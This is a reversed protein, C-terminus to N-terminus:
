MQKNDIDYVLFNICLDLSTDEYFDNTESTSNNDDKLEDDILHSILVAENQKAFPPRGSSLEWMLVGLSYIDSSKHHKYSLNELLKPDIYPIMGFVESHVDTETETSKAIGLDIIKAEGQHIVINKSHLDRHLINEGHLFKIGETIQYALRIKDDWTLSPFHKDLYDRLNGGDAYQLVLLYEQTCEDVDLQEMLTLEDKNIFKEFYNDVVFNILELPELQGNAPFVIDKTRSIDPKRISELSKTYNRNDAALFELCLPTLCKNHYISSWWQLLTDYVKSIDPRLNPNPDWCKIILEKFIKPVDDSIDPRLGQCIDLALFQSDEFRKFPEFPIQGVGVTYMIMGFTYINSSKTHSKNRIYEPSLYSRWEFVVEIDKLLSFAKHCNSFSGMACLSNDLVLINAPHLNWHVYGANHLAKLDEALYFLLHLKIEWDLRYFNQLIYDQLSGCQAYQRVIIYENNEPHKSIGYFHILLSCNQEYCDLYIKLENLIEYVQDKDYLKILVRIKSKMCTGYDFKPTTENHLEDEILELEYQSLKEQIIEDHRPDQTMLSDVLKILEEDISPPDHTQQMM